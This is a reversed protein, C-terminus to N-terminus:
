GTESGPAPPHTWGVRGGGGDRGRKGGDRGCGCRRKRKGAVKRYLAKATKSLYPGYLHAPDDDYTYSTVSLLTGGVIWGGGSAGSSMDCNIALTAPGSGLPADAGANGSVCRYERTGTFEASREITPYGYAEYSQDRPQDFRIRRAGVLEQLRRGDSDKAVIAAGLDYRYNAFKRWGRTTKLQKAPWEGFPAGAESYGPVFMWNSVYSGGSTRFVCHGATWVLSRKRSNIVTGSCVRDGADPGTPITFFVKGHMRVEPAAPDIVEHRVVADTAAGPRLAAPAGDGPVHSAAGPELAAADRAPPMALVPAQPQEAALMRSMTWYDRVEAPSQGTPAAAAPASAAALAAFATILALSARRLQKRGGDM